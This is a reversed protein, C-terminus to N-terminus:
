VRQLPAVLGARVQAARATDWARGWARDLREHRARAATPAAPGAFAHRAFAGALAAPDVLHAAWAAGAEPDAQLEDYSLLAIREAPLGAVGAALQRVQRRLRLRLGRLLLERRWPSALLRQLRHYGATDGDLARLYPSSRGRLLAQTVSREIDAVRRRILVMGAEPRDALIRAESGLDWPNKLVVPRDPADGRLEAVHEALLRPGDSHDYIRHGGTAHHLLFGYEEPTGPTVELRDTGRDAGAAGTDALFAALTPIHRALVGVTTTVGGTAETLAATVVTTGSRHFGDVFLLPPAV